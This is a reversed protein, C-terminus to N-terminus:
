EYYKRRQVWWVYVGVIWSTTLIIVSLVISNADGSSVQSIASYFLFLGFINGVVNGTALEPHAYNSLINRLFDFLSALGIAWSLNPAGTATSLTNVATIMASIMTGIVLELVPSLLGEFFGVIYPSTERSRAM